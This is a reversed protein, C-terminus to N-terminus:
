FVCTALAQPAKVGGFEDQSFQMQSAVVHCNETGFNM